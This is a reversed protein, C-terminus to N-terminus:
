PEAMLTRAASTGCRAGGNSVATGSLSLAEQPGGRCRGPHKLAAGSAVTTGGATTGLAADNRINVVGGDIATAGTYTNAASLTLTGSGEELTGQAQRSRIESVTVQASAM